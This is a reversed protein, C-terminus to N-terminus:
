KQAIKVARNREADTLALVAYATAADSMFRATEPSQHHEESRNLSPASWCGEKTDQNEQLWKLARALQPNQQSVGAQELVFAVFATAFGDSKTEQPTADARQWNGSLSSTSWGGDPQQKVLLESVIAAQRPPAILAPVRASAWLLQAHNLTTQAEFGRNLYERLINIHSQVDPSSAYNEPAIGAAVAALTAGYYDSDDAEWPENHFRLWRWGGKQDGSTQQEDWMNDLAVGTVDSLKGTQADSSALILANLVSETGRSEVSKYQGRDADTYFPAVTSWLRVRKEISTLLEREQATPAPEGLSNHLASRSIAYPMATHCSVCFTGHDRASKPWNQWWSERYDLYAAASQKNWSSAAALKPRAHSAVVTGALLLCSVVAAIQLKNIPLTTESQV